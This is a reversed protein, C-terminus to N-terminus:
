IQFGTWSRPPSDRLKAMKSSGQGLAGEAREVGGLLGLAAQIRESLADSWDKLVLQRKSWSIEIDMLRDPIVGGELLVLDTGANGKIDKEFAPLRDQVEVTAHAETTDADLEQLRAQAKQM